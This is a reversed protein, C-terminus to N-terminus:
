MRRQRIIQHKVNSVCPVNESSLPAETCFCHLKFSRPFMSSKSLQVFSKWSKNMKQPFSKEVATCLQSAACCNPQKESTPHHRVSPCKEKQLKEKRLKEKEWSKKEWSKQEWVKWTGIQACCNSQKEPSTQHHRISPCPTVTPRQSVKRRSLEVLVLQSRHWVNSIHSVYQNAGKKVRWILIFKM